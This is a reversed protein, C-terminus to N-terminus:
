RSALEEMSRSVMGYREKLRHYHELIKRLVALNEERHLGFNHPHWWLHYLLGRRAAHTMGGMIRGLRLPELVRLRPHYPRLFRSAPIGVPATGEAPLPHCHHGTVNVYADLLRLARKPWPERSRNGDRYVWSAPNDRYCRIGAQALLPLYAPDVQNRPFVLSELRIGLREAARVAAELDAAFDEGDQGEELCYFHSFTHSGIYQHPRSQILRILSPAFHYPDQEEDEGLRDLDLYPSLAPQAYQPLKTPLGGLLEERRSFFLMGVVAWSAHIEYEEFLELIQPIVERAGLLHARYQELAWRDRVGWYLEFDLSIVLVGRGAM